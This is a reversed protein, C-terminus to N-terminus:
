RACNLLVESLVSLFFRLFLMMMFLGFFGKLIESM